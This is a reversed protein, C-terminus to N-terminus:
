QAQKILDGKLRLLETEAIKLNYRATILTNEADALSQEAQRLEIFTSVGVRYRERAINLNEKALAISSDGLTMVQKQTTYTKYTNIINTNTVSQQNQYNLQQFRVALEAQKVEQRVQFQNFIPISASIGYNFGHNLTSLPQYPNIVTNNNSKSFNYASILAITPFRDAKAVRVNIGAIDINKKALLLEPSSENINNLLDGLALGSQLPISDNVKYTAGNTINMLRNLDQKHQEIVTLQNLQAAKQQNFDVQAQLLDPKIGVGIDFKYQALKLRDASLSMQEEINRLQQKQHVIDYYTKIVDSITNVLQNKITLSGFALQEGLRDRIAFVRFGDFVVWNLNLAANTNNTRIGSGTRKPGTALTQSQSNNNFLMTSSANVGPLFGANRYSYNIAAILSDNRSIQIDYNNQLATAIAQEITLSDPADQSFIKTSFIFSVLLLFSCKMLSPKCMHRCM